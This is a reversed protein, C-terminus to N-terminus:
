GSNMLSMRRNGHLITMLVFISILLYIMLALRVWRRPDNGWQASASAGGARWSAPHGWYSAHSHVDTRDDEASRRRPARGDFEAFPDDAESRRYPLM